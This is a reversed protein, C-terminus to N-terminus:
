CLACSDDFYGVTAQAADTGGRGDSITYNVTKNGITSGRVTIHTGGGAISATCGSSVCSTATVTLTDGDPDSDNTRVYVPVVDWIEYSGSVTDNVAVPPNNAPANITGSGQSDAITAGSTAASLNVVMAKSGSTVSGATTAVSITQSTQASTFTLTGSKATYHTGAVATGNATAYNVSHSLATSGTKTVTFSLASGATASADSITFSPAADNNNITGSGQGDSITAGNTPISLNVLVTENNEYATDNTTAVTVVKSTQGITFTLTGSATTYDSGSTATGNATGYNVANTASLNGTRAVTFSLSTGEAVATANGISFITPGCSNSSLSFNERNGAPDYAYSKLKSQGVDCATVLRGLEDYSYSAQNQAMSPAMQALLSFLSAGILADIRRHCQRLGRAGCFDPRVASM